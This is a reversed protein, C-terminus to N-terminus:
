LIHERVVGSRLCTGERARSWPRASSLLAALHVCTQTFSHARETSSAQPASAKSPTRKCYVLNCLSVSVCFRVSERKCSIACVQVENSLSVLLSSTLGPYFTNESSLIHERVTSHTRKVVSPIGAVLADLWPRWLEWILVLAGTLWEANAKLLGEQTHTFLVCEITLSCM